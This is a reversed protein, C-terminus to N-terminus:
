RRFGFANASRPACMYSRVRISISSSHLRQLRGETANLLGKLTNRRAILSEIWETQREELRPDTPDFQWTRLFPEVLSRIPEAGPRMTLFCWQRSNQFVQPWPGTDVNAEPWAQRKLAALVGAQALSSKGVGSNGLLVPLKDPADALAKIVEVTERERGFFYDADKEEMASLGRYPSTYRWLEGVQAGTGAAADILRAVDKESTPDATVIWHLQRLFPLGPAAHGDLLMLVVPFEPSKVHKDHAEYYELTQWPGLGKEGVLLVFADAEDIGKALAPQWYGGARLSTADFFVRSGADKREISVKLREALARDSSNFSLFWRRM